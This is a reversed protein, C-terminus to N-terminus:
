SPLRQDLVRRAADADAEIEVPANRLSADTGPVDGQHVRLKFDPFKLGHATSIVVVSAGSPIEGSASLRVLVGLAVGTQPDNFFGFRDGFAAADALEAESAQSVIGNTARLAWVAKPFSVPNGVRIATAMTPGAALPEFDRFGSLWSRYLPNAQESQACVLRPLSGVLGLERALLFGTGIASINGLNGGPVVVFDPVKWDMQELIEFAITKQGEVRLPNMSNALYISPDKATIAQVIAMCGDFDTDLSFTLAGNSIPQILQALTVKDRPLFVVSPIGAAASYAALAASTDGTSACVIARIRTRISNVMSVLVTMGLDKFSGTHSTGCQKLSVEGLGLAQAMRPSSILPSNGEGLSVIDREDLEPLVLEKRSWVGSLGGRRSRFVDKWESATRSGLAGVDHRVELLGNCTPCRYFAADLPHPESCGSFCAFWASFRTQGSVSM